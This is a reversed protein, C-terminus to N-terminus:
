KFILSFFATIGPKFCFFIHILSLQLLELSEYRTGGITSIGDKKVFQLLKDVIVGEGELALRYAEEGIYWDDSEKKKCIITPYTWADEQGGCSIQTYSDCLDLGIILGDM